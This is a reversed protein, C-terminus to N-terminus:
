RGFGSAKAKPKKQKKAKLRRQQRNLPPGSAQQEAEMSARISEPSEGRAFKVAAGRMMNFELVFRGVDELSADTADAIRQLKPAQGGSRGAEAEDILTQTAEGGREEPEMAEIYEAYKQLKKQGAALDAGSGAMKGLMDQIGAGKQMVQVQMLFDDFTMQGGKLREEMEKAEEDSLGAGGLGMNEMVSKGMKGFDFQMAPSATRTRPTAVGPTASRLPQVQIPAAAASLPSLSGGQAEDVEHKVLLAVTESLSSLVVLAFLLCRPGRFALHMFM